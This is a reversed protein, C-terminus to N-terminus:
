MDEELGTELVYHQGVEDTADVIQPYDFGVAFLANALRNLKANPNDNLPLFYHVQISYGLASPANDSFEAPYRTYNFTCYETASGAYLHPVCIPVVPTVAARIAKDISM